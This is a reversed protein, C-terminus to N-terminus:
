MARATRRIWPSTSETSSSPSERRAQADDLTVRCPYGPYETAPRLAHRRALEEDSMAHFAAFQAPDLGSIQFPV